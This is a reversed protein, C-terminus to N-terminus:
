VEEARAAPVGREVGVEFDVTVIGDSARVAAHRVLRAVASVDVAGGGPRPAEGGAAARALWDQILETLLTDSIPVSGSVRAGSFAAFGTAIQQQWWDHM